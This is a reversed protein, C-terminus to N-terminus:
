RQKERPIQQITACDTGSLIYPGMNVRYIVESSFFSMCICAPLYEASFRTMHSQNPDLPETLDLFPTNLPHPGYNM